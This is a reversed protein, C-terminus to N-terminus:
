VLTDAQCLLSHQGISQHSGCDSNLLILLGPEIQALALVRILLITTNLARWTRSGV